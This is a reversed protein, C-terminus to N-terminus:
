PARAHGAVGNAPAAVRAVAPLPSESSVARQSRRLYVDFRTGRAPESDDMIAGGHRRVIAQVTSLGLGAGRGRVRTTFFPEFIREITAADTGPGEDVVRLRFYGGAALDAVLMIRPERKQAVAVGHQELADDDGAEVDDVEGGEMGGDNAGDEDDRAVLGIEGADAASEAAAGARRGEDLGGARHLGDAADPDLAGAERGGLGGVQHSRRRDVAVYGRGEAEGVEDGAADGVAV